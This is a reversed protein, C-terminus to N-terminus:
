RTTIFLVLSVTLYAALICLWLVLGFPSTFFTFLGKTYDHHENKYLITIGTKMFPTTFDIVGARESTIVMDAIVRDAKQSQLEGIM